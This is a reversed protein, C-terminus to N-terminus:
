ITTEGAPRLELTVVGGVVKDGDHLPYVAVRVPVKRGDRCKMLGSARLERVVKLAQALLDVGPTGADSPLEVLAAFPQNILAKGEFGTAAVVAPNTRSINMVKTLVLVLDNTSNIILQDYRHQHELAQNAWRRELNETLLVENARALEATRAQVKADLDRNATELIAVVRRRAELDDRILWVM